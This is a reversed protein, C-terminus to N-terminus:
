VRAFTAKISALKELTAPDFVTPPPRPPRYVRLPRAPVPEAADVFATVVPEPPAEADLELEGIPLGAALRKQQTGGAEPCPLHSLLEWAEECLEDLRKARDFTKTRAEKPVDFPVDTYEALAVAALRATAHGKDKGKGILVMEKSGKQDDIKKKAYFKGRMKVVNQYGSSSKSSKLLKLERGDSTKYPSFDDPEHRGGRPM